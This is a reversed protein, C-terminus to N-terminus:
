GESGGALRRLFEAEDITEVNHTRAQRVKTEGPKVGLVVFDTKGSVSSAPRGGAAKVADLAGTRTFHELTGTVVVTLGALPRASGGGAPGPEPRAASMDVGAERLRRVAEAGASSHFFAHVSEAIVSDDQEKLAHTLEEVSAEALQRRAGFRQVLLEAKRKDLGKAQSSRVWEVTTPSDDADDRGALWDALRQAVVSPKTLARRIDAQEADLLEDISAFSAALDEALTAGVHRIGLGALVRHLGRHRSKEIAEVLNAASKEGMRDLEALQEPTLAYLDAFHTVLRRDVLQDIVAPGLHEIDMQNRGGFFRLSERLRAPCEPNVCRLYVGGPDRRTAQGCSPCANPPGVPRTDPGRRDHRVAVVQPIIEGAKEVVVTDGVRVGLREVQDFNHLSANSVTTGALRVPDFHAVPTITGLRGVQFDVSRLVTEAQEAEYKYAICWRPYKSAAGLRERQALDDLKVVMGDTEYEAEGRRALWEDIAALADDITSCLRGHPNVPIGWVALRRMTEAASAPGGPIRGGLGHALFALGREAVLRPDLQKLTGAAGNRPNAFPEAGDEVRRANYANFAKRPWYVEGRVEVRDPVDEGTLRLPVSRITRANATIDDGRRGDGRTAARVLRGNDYRLSVAVGDIKPDALYRLSDAEDGLARRVRQDFQRLEEPSYTNDISLMPPDHEVTEFGEAPEGGVRQTPSDPTVLLPNAAEIDKLEALLRDYERDSLEPAAEVYYLRDHRRIEERLQEIRAAPDM